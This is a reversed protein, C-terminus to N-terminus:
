LVSLYFYVPIIFLKRILLSHSIQKRLSRLMDFIFRLYCESFCQVWNWHLHVPSWPSLSAPLVMLKVHMDKQITLGLLVQSLSNSRTHPPLTARSNNTCSIWNECTVVQLTSCIFANHTELEARLSGSKETPFFKIKCIWTTDSNPPQPLTSILEDPGWQKVPPSLTAPCERKTNSSPDSWELIM